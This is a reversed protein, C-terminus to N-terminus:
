DEEKLRSEIEDSLEDVRDLLLGLKMSIDATYTLLLDKLKEKDTM